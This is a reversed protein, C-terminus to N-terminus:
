AALVEFRTVDHDRALSERPDLRLREKGDELPAKTDLDMGLDAPLTHEVAERVGCRVTLAKGALAPRAQDEHVVVHGRENGIEATLSPTRPDAGDGTPGV